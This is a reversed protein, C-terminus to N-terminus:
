EYNKRRLDNQYVGSEYYIAGNINIKIAGIAKLVYTDTHPFEMVQGPRMIMGNVDVINDGQNEVVDVLNFDNTKKCSVVTLGLGVAVLFIIITKM